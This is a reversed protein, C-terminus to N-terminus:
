TYGWLNRSVEEDSSYKISIVHVESAKYNLSYVLIASLLEALKTPVIM